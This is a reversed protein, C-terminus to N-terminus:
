SLEELCDGRVRWIFVEALLLVWSGEERHGHVVGANGVPTGKFEDFLQPFPRKVRGAHGVKAVFVNNDPDLSFFASAM